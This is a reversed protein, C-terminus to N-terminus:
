KAKGMRTAIRDLLEPLSADWPLTEQEARLEKALWRLISAPLTAGTPAYVREPLDESGIM